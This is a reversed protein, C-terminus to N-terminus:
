SMYIFCLIFNDVGCFIIIIQVATYSLEKAQRKGATCCSTPALRSRSFRWDTRNQWEQTLQKTTIDYFNCYYIKIGNLSWLFWKTSYTNISCNVSCSNHTTPPRSLVRPRLLIIKQFCSTWLPLAQSYFPHRSNPAARRCSWLVYELM